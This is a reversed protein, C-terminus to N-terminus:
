ISQRDVASMFGDRFKDGIPIQMSALHIHNDLVKILHRTNIIYSNHVRIFPMSFQKEIDKLRRYILLRENITVLSVYEKQGEFYLIDEILIKHLTKGSKIYFHATDNSVLSSPPTQRQRFHSEVKQAAAMFRKLTIPKLLYDITQYNYSEAGYESYATTFIVKVDPPLLAALELGNLTPMDIDLFVLHPQNTNIVALADMADYYKAMINWDTSKKIYLELLDVAYPEDDIILCNINM